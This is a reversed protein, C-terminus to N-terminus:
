VAKLVTSLGPVNLHSFIVKLVVIGVIAMLTIILINFASARINAFENEKGTRHALWWIVALLAALTVVAIVASGGFITTGGAQGQPTGDASAGSVQSAQSAAAGGGSTQRAQAGASGGLLNNAYSLAKSTDWGGLTYGGATPYVTRVSNTAISPM